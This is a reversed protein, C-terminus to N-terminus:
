LKCIHTWRMNGMTLLSVCVFAAASQTTWNSHHPKPAQAQDLVSNHKIGLETLWPSQSVVGSKPRLARRTFHPHGLGLM